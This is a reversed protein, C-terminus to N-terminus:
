RRRTPHGVRAAMGAGPHDGRLDEPRIPRRHRHPRRHGRARASSHRGLQAAVIVHADAAVRVRHVRLRYPPHDGHGGGQVPHHGAARITNNGIM